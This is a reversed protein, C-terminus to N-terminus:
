GGGLALVCGNVSLPTSQTVQLSPIEKWIQKIKKSSAEQNLQLLLAPLSVSYVTDSNTGGMLYWTDGVIASKMESWGVPMPSATYWKKNNINMVEVSLQYTRYESYGGAVVIMGLPRDPGCRWRLQLPPKLKLPVQPILQIIVSSSWWKTDSKKRGGGTATGAM